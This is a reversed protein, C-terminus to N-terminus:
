QIESLEKLIQDISQDIMDSKIKPTLKTKIANMVVHLTKQTIKNSIEDRMKEISLNIQKEAQAQKSSLTHELAAKKQAVYADTEAKIKKSLANIDIDSNLFQREYRALLDQADSKLNAAEDIERIIRERRGELLFCLKKWVSKGLVLVVLIFAMGVWFEATGYFATHPANESFPVIESTKEIVNTVAEVVANQTADILHSGTENETEIDPM